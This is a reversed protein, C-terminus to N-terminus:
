LGLKGTLLLYLSALGMLAAFIMVALALKQGLTLGRQESMTKERKM